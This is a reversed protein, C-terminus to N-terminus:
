QKLIFYSKPKDNSIASNLSKFGTYKTPGINSVEGKKINEGVSFTVVHGHGTETVGAISLGGKEANAKATKYDVPLFNPNDAFGNKGLMDNAMGSENINPNNSASSVTKLICQTAQNCHTEKKGEANQQLSPNTMNLNQQEQIASTVNVENKGGQENFGSFEYHLNTGSGTQQFVANSGDEVHSTTNGDKDKFDTDLADDFEPTKSFQVIGGFGAPAMGDPDIFYIPNNFAYNYPSHRRMQEALPDVNMWRGLAPDYNRATIDIWSLGLEEQEEKNGFGFNHDRGNQLNNYGKHKLGFPYYNNEEVIQLSPTSTLSIDKYSLRINGLHDKYQYVYAGELEGSPPSSIEVYGEPQNFFQLVNNEYIFNGTYDTTTTNVTKRLKVGTADYVYLINQGNITVQTPLNLYNYQIATINKNADTKLNGNADYLYETTLNAGDKFGYTANGIDTVKVLKNGADYTYGLIDMDGFLTANAPINIPARAHRERWRPPPKGLSTTISSLCACSCNRKIESSSVSSLAIM